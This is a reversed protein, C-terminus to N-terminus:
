KGTPPELRDHHIQCNKLRLALWKLDDDTLDCGRLNLARLNTLAGLQHVNVKQCRSVDLSQLTKALKELPSFDRIGECGQL